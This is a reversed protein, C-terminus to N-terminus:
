WKYGCSECKFTKSIHGLSFVGFLAVAGVKNGGSIKKVVTSNCTPCKITNSNTNINTKINENTKNIGHNRMQKDLIKVKDFNLQSFEEEKFKKLLKEHLAKKDDLSLVSIENEFDQLDSKNTYTPKSYKANPISDYVKDVADKAEKLSVAPYANDKVHKVFSVKKDQYVNYLELLDLGNYMYENNEKTESEVFSSQEVPCGCNICQKSKDSIEKGCDECKILAM